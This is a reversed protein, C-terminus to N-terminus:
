GKLCYHKLNMSKAMVYKKRKTFWSAIPTKRSYFTKLKEIDNESIKKDIVIKEM